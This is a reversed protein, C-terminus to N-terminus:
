VNIRQENETDTDCRPKPSPFPSQSPSGAANDMKKKNQQHYVQRLKEIERKLAEQHAAYYIYIYTRSQMIQHKTQLRIYLQTSLSLAYPHNACLDLYVKCAFEKVLTVMVIYVKIIPRNRRGKLPVFNYITHKIVQM